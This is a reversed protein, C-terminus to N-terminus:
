PTKEAALPPPDLNTIPKAVTTTLCSTPRSPPPLCIRGARLEPTQAAQPSQCPGRGCRQDGPFVVAALMADRDRRFSTPLARLESQATATLWLPQADADHERLLPRFETALARVTALAPCAAGLAEVYACEQRRLTEAHHAYTVDV